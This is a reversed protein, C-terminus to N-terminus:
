LPISMRERIGLMRAAAVSATADRAAHEDWLELPGGEEEAAGVTRVAQCDTSCWILGSPLTVVSVARDANAIAIPGTGLATTGAPGDCSIAEPVMAMLHTM